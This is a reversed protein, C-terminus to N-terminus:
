GHLGEVKQRLADFFLDRVRELRLAEAHEIDCTDSTMFRAPEVQVVFSNPHKAWFWEASGFQLYDRDLAPLRALSDRLARGRPSDEICLALYAIRYRVRGEFRGPLRQLNHPDQGNAL